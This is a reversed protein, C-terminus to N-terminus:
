WRYNLGGLVSYGNLGSAALWDGKVYGSFRNDRTGVELGGGVDGWNAVKANPIAFGDFTVLGGDKFGHTLAFNGLLTANWAEAAWVPIRARAGLKADLGDQDGFVFRGWPSGVDDYRTSLYTVAVYPEVSGFRWDVTYGGDLQTGWVSGKMKSSFGVRDIRYTNDLDDYLTSGGIWWPGAMYQVYGGISTGKLALSSLGGRLGGSATTNMTGDSTGYGGFLGFSVATNGRLEAGFDIGGLFRTLDQQTKTDYSWTASGASTANNFHDDFSAHMVQAWLATGSGVGTSVFSAQGFNMSAFVSDFPNSEPATYGLAQQPAAAAIPASGAIMARISARHDDFANQGVQWYRNTQSLLSPAAM